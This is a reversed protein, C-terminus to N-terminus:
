DRLVSIFESFDNAILSMYEYSCSVPDPEAGWSWYYVKGADPGGVSIVVRDDAPDIAIPILNPPIQGAQTIGEIEELLNDEADDSIPLFRSIMSEIKGDKTTFRRSAPRGGNHALLFSRYPAPLMLGATRELSLLQAEGISHYSDEIKIM